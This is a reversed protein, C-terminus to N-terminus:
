ESAAASTSPLRWGTHCSAEQRDPAPGAVSADFPRPHRRGVTGAGPQIEGLSALNGALVSLALPFGITGKRRVLATREGVLCLGLRRGPGGWPTVRRCRRLFGVQHACRCRGLGSRDARGHHLPARPGAGAQHGLGAFWRQMLLGPKGLHGSRRPEDIGGRQQRLPTCLAGRRGAGSRGSVAVLAAVGAAILSGLSRTAPPPAEPSGPSTEVSPPRRRRLRAATRRESSPLSDEVRGERLLTVRQFPLRPSCNNREHHQADVEDHNQDRPPWVTAIFAQCM